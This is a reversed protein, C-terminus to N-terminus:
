RECRGQRPLPGGTFSTLAIVPSKLFRCLQARTTYYDRLHQHHRHLFTFPLACPARVGSAAEKRSLTAPYRGQLGSGPSSVPALDGPCIPDRFGVAVSICSRTSPLSSDGPFTNSRFQTGQSYNCISQGRDSLTQNKEMSVFVCTIDKICKLLMIATFLPGM